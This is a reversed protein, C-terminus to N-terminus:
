FIDVQFVTFSLKNQNLNLEAEGAFCSFLINHFNIINWDMDLEIQM